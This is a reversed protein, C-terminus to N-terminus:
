QILKPKAVLTSIADFANDLQAQNSINYCYSKKSCELLKTPDAAIAPDTYTGSACRAMVNNMTDADPDTIDVGLLVTFITVGQNKLYQCVDRMHENYVRYNYVYQNSYKGTPHNTYCCGSNIGDALLVVYKKGVNWDSM